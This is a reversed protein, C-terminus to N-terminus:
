QYSCNLTITEQLVEMIKSLIFISNTVEFEGSNLSHNTNPIVDIKLNSNSLQDIQNSNFGM